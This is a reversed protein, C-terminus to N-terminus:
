GKRDLVPVMNFMDTTLGNSELQYTIDERTQWKVHGDLYLANWGNTHMMPWSGTPDMSSIVGSDFLIVAKSPSTEEHNSVASTTNYRQWGNYGGLTPRRAESWAHGMPDVFCYWYSIIHNPAFWDKTVRRSAAGGPATDNPCYLPNADMLYGVSSCFKLLVDDTASISPNNKVLLTLAGEQMNPGYSSHIFYQTPSGLGVIFPPIMDNNDQAYMLCAKSVQSLNSGCVTQKASERATNLAPLLMSVLVAIIAVVVLLEILTFGSAKRNRLGSKPNSLKDGMIKEKRCFM